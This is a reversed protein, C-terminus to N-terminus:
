TKKAFSRIVGLRKILPKKIDPRLLLVGLVLGSGIFFCGYAVYLLSDMELFESGMWLINMMSWLFIGGNALKLSLGKVGLILIFGTILTPIILGYCLIQLGFMWGADLCLWSACNILEVKEEQKKSLYKM